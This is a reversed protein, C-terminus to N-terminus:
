VPSLEDTEAFYVTTHRFVNIGRQILHSFNHYALVINM